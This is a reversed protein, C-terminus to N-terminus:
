CIRANEDRWVLITLGILLIAGILTPTVSGTRANVVLWFGISSALPLCWYVLSGKYAQLIRASICAGISGSLVWGAFNTWPVEHYAGHTAYKWLGLSVAGPDLVLDIAVLIWASLFIGSAVTKTTRRAIQWAGLMLPVWALPLLMPVGAVLPGLGGVYQFSGYPFGTQVGIGEILYAFISLSMLGKLAVRLGYSAISLYLPIVAGLLLFTLTGTIFIPTYRWDSAMWGGVASGLM